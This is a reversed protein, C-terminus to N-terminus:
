TENHYIMIKDFCIHFVHTSICICVHVHTDMCSVAWIPWMMLQIVGDLCWVTWAGCLGHVMDNM